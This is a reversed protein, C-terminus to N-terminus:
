EAQSQPSGDAAKDPAQRGPWSETFMYRTNGVVIYSQFDKDADPNKFSGHRLMSQLPRPANQFYIPNSLPLGESSESWTAIAPLDDHLAYLSWTAKFGDFNPTPQLQRFLMFKGPFHFGCRHMPLDASRLCACIPASAHVFDPDPVDLRDLSCRRSSTELVFVGGTNIHGSASVGDADSWRIRPETASSIQHHWGAAAAWDVRLDLSCARHDSLVANDPHLAIVTMRNASLDVECEVGPHLGSRVAVIRLTREYRGSFEYEVVNGGAEFFVDVSVTDGPYATATTFRLTQSQAPASITFAALLLLLIPIRM